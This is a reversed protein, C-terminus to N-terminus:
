WVINLHFELPRPRFNLDWSSSIALPNPLHVWWWSFLTYQLRFVDTILQYVLGRCPFVTSVTSPLIPSALLPLPTLLFHPHPKSKGSGEYALNTYISYDMISVPWPFYYSIVSTKLSWYVGLPMHQREWHFWGGRPGGHSTATSGRRNRHWM